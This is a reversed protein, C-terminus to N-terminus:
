ILMKAGIDLYKLRVCKRALDELNINEVGKIISLEKVLTLPLHNFEEKFHAISLTELGLLSAVEDIMM